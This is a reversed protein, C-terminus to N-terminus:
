EPKAADPAEATEASADEEAPADAEPKPEAPAAKSEPADSKEAAKPADPEEIAEAEDETIFDGAINFVKLGARRCRIIQLLLTRQEGSKLTVEARVVEGAVMEHEHLFSMGSRSIDKTYVTFEDRCASLRDFRKVYTITAEVMYLHRDYRRKEAGKNPERGQENEVLRKLQRRLSQLNEATAKAM